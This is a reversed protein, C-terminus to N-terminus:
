GFIKRKVSEGFCAKHYKKSKDLITAEGCTPCTLRGCVHCNGYKAACDKCWWSGCLCQGGIEVGVHDCDPVGFETTTIRELVGESTMNEEYATRKVVGTQAIRGGIRVVEVKREQTGALPNDTDSM